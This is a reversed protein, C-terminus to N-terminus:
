INEENDDAVQGTPFHDFLSFRARVPTEDLPDKAQIVQLAGQEASFDQPVNVAGFLNRGQSIMRLKQSFSKSQTSLDKPNNYCIKEM